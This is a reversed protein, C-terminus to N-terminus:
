ESPPVMCEVVRLCFLCEEAFPANKPHESLYRFYHSCNTSRKEKEDPETTSPNSGLSKVKEFLRALSVNLNM